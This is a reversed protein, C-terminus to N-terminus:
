IIIREEVVEAHAERILECKDAPFLAERDVEIADRRWAHRSVM